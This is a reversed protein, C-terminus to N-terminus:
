RTRLRFGLNRLRGQGVPRIPDGVRRQFKSAAPEGLGCYRGPFEVVWELVGQTMLSLERLSSLHNPELWQGEVMDWVARADRSLRESLSAPAPPAPHGGFWEYCTLWERATLLGYERGMWRGFALAEEPTVGTMFLRERWCVEPSLYSARPNLTLIEEYWTDDFERHRGTSILREFQPKAVPFLHVYAGLPEVFVLPYGCSDVQWEYADSDQARRVPEAAPPAFRSFYSLLTDIDGSLIQEKTIESVRGGPGQLSREGIRVLLWGDVRPDGTWDDLDFIEGSGVIIVSRRQGDRTLAELTPSILSCAQHQQGVGPTGTQKLATLSIPAASGLTFLMFQEEDMVGTLNYILQAVRRAEDLYPAASSSTDVILAFAEDQEPLPESM